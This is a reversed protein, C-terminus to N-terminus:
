VFLFRAGLRTKLDTNVPYPLLSEVFTGMTIAGVWVNNLSADVDVTDRTVAKPTYKPVGAGGTADQAAIEILVVGNAATMATGLTTGVTLVDYDANSTDIATIAYGKTSAVDKTTIINGVKLQHNKKVQYTTASNTADAHLKVSKIIYWHGPSATDEGIVTGAPIEMTGSKLAAAVMLVGGPIDEHVKQICLAEKTESTKRIQFSM